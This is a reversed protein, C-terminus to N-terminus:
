ANAVEQREAFSAGQLLRICQRRADALEAITASPAFAWESATTVLLWLLTRADASRAITVRSSAVDRAKLLANRAAREEEGTWPMHLGIPDAALRSAPANM